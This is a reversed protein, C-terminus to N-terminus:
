DAPHASKTNVSDIDPTKTVRWQSVSSEAYTVVYNSAGTVNVVLVHDGVADIWQLMENLSAFSKTRFLKTSM